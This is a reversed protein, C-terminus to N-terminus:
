IRLILHLVYNHYGTLASHDTNIDLWANNTRQKSILPKTDSTLIWRALSPFVNWVPGPNDWSVCREGVCECWRVIWLRWVDTPLVWPLYAFGVCAHPSMWIQIKYSYKYINLYTKKKQSIYMLVLLSNSQITFGSWGGGRRREVEWKQSQKTANSYFDRGGSREASRTKPQVNLSISCTPTSVVALFVDLLRFSPQKKKKTQEVWSIM